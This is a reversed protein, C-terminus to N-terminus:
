AYETPACHYYKQFHRYFHSADAFGWRAAVTKVPAAHLSLDRAASSVRYRLAFEAFPLGMVRKFLSAFANRNLGCHRAAAQTSVFDAAGFVLQVARDVQRLNDDRRERGAPMPAPLMLMLELLKLRNRADQVGPNIRDAGAFTRGIAQALRRARRPIQPRAPPPARFPALWHRGGALERGARLLFSPEIILVVAECPARTVTWGHPEWMGCLWVGGPSVSLEHNRYYRRMGGALIIGLELGYHMDFRANMKRPIRHHVVCLPQEGSIEFMMKEVASPWAPAANKELPHM